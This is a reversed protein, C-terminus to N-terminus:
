KLSQQEKNYNKKQISLLYQHIANVDEKSLSNKFSAMGNKALMGGLVINEFLQHKAATLKTLEPHLTRRAGIVGHCTECYVYYLYSGQQALQQNITIPPPEPTKIEVVPEPVPSATGGLKFAIIRGRNKYKYFAADRPYCCTPAGGYGAMVAVYQEGDVMYSTPAAMIGTGTFIEKLKKGTKADYVKLYGTRTGQFLLEPTSLTGGDPAGETVKWVAKQAVPDWALLSETAITDGPDKVQYAVMKFDGSANYNIRTNDEDPKWKFDEIAAYVMPQFHEPIYVLGTGPNFSM